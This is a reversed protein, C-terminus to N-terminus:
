ILEGKDEWVSEGLPLHHLAEGWGPQGAEAPVLSM